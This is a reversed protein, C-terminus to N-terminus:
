AHTCLVCYRGCVASTFRHIHLTSVAIEGQEGASQEKSEQAAMKEMKAEKAAAQARTLRAGSATAAGATGSLVATTDLSAAWEDGSDSDVGDSDDDSKGEM